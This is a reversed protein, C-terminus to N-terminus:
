RKKRIRFPLLFRVWPKCFQDLNLSEYMAITSQGLVYTHILDRTYFPSDVLSSMLTPQAHTDARTTREVGWFGSQIRKDCLDEINIVEGQHTFLIGRQQSSHNRELVDYLVLTGQEVEARSWTWSQFGEELSSSGWNSDCYANGEFSLQPMNLQVSIRSCPAIGMWTHQGFSDLQLEHLFQHTSSLRICGDIHRPMRQFFPKTRENIEISMGDTTHRLQTDGLSLHNASRHITPNHPNLHDQSYESLCWLTKCGIRAKGRPTLAHLAFNFACFDEPQALKSGVLRKQRAKYYDPSFVHGVFAIITLSFDGDDSIADIYWWQYGHPDLRRNFCLRPDVSQSSSSRQHCDDTYRSESTRERWSSLSGQHSDQCGNEQSQQGMTQQSTRLDNRGLASVPPAMRQSNDLTTAYSLYERKPKSPSSSHHNSM